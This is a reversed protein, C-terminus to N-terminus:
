GKVLHMFVGYRAGKTSVIIEKFGFNNMFSRLIMAGPKVIDERGNMISGLKLIERENMSLLKMTIDNVNDISLVTGHIKSEDFDTLGKSMAALVTPTGALGVLTKWNLADNSIDNWISNIYQEAKDKQDQGTFFMEKGKVSGFDVSQFSFENKDFFSVETSGGGIDIVVYEKEPLDFVAGYFGFRAESEGSFIEIELDVKKYFYDLVEDVNQADRFPSTGFAFVRDVKNKHAIKNYDKIVKATRKLAEPSIKGSQKIGEGLRPSELLDLIMKPKGGDMEAILMLCTNTGIDLVAIRSDPQQM